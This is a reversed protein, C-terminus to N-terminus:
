IYRTPRGSLNAALTSTAGDACAAWIPVGSDMLDISDGADIHQWRNDTLAPASTAACLFVREDGTNQVTSFIRERLGPGNWSAALTLDKAVDTIDSGSSM